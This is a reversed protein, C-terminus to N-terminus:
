PGRRGIGIGWYAVGAKAFKEPDLIRRGDIVLARRALRKVAKPDLKRFEPAETQVVIADAGKIAAELTPAREFNGRHQLPMAKSFADKVLPDYGVVEAGGEIAEAAILLGRSERVDDTGPKFALGLLAIRKGQLDKLERVLVRTVESPQRENVALAAEAITLSRGVSRASAAVAKLDKPFCSGGFGVGANLFKRGIREDHGIADAVAYWDVGLEVSLNAFENAFSIKTALFANAAYKVLEATTPDTFIVPCKAWKYLAAVSKAAAEDIAGIVIRDPKLADNLATGEKLFEPNSALGFDRGAKKGSATEIEKRVLGMVTGPVVTSKVIVTLGKGKGRRHLEEGISRAVAKVYRSDQSGDPNPPTGVCIFVHTAGAYAEKPSSTAALKEAKLAKRLAEDVGPEEFPAKGRAISATKSEDTDLLTCRMGHATLALATTLGVFSSGVITIRAASARAPKAAM